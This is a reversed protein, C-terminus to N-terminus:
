FHIYILIIIFLDKIAKLLIEQGFLVNQFHALKFVTFVNQMQM